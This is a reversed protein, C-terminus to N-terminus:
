GVTMNLDNLVPPGRGYTKCANQVQVAIPRDPGINKKINKLTLHGDIPMGNEEHRNNAFNSDDLASSSSRAVM